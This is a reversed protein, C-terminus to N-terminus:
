NPVTTFVDKELERSFLTVLDPTNPVEWMSHEIDKSFDNGKSPRLLWNRLFGIERSTPPKAARLELAQSLAADSSLILTEVSM